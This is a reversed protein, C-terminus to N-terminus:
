HDGPALSLFSDPAVPHATTGNYQGIENFSLERRDSDGQTWVAFNGSGAHSASIIALGQLLSFPGVVSDGQGEFEYRIPMPVPVSTSTPALTPAPVSTPPPSPMPTPTGTPEPTTPVPTGSPDSPPTPVSASAAAPTSAPIPSPNSEPAPTSTTCAVGIALLAIVTALRAKGTRLLFRSMPFGRSANSTPRRDCYGQGLPSGM